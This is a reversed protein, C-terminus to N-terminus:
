YEYGFVFCFGLRKAQKNPAIAKKAEIIELMSGGDVHNPGEAQAGSNNHKSIYRERDLLSRWSREQWCTKQQFKPLKCSNRNHLIPCEQRLFCKFCIAYSSFHGKKSRMENAVSSVHISVVFGGEFGLNELGIICTIL